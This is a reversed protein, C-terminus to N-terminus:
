QSRTRGTCNENSDTLDFIKMTGSSSISPLSVSSLPAGRESVFISAVPAEHTEVFWPTSRSASSVIECAGPIVEM